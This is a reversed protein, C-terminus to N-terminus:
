LAVGIAVVELLPAHMGGCAKGLSGFARLRDYQEKLRLAEPTLACGAICLPRMSPWEIGM